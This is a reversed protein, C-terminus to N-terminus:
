SPIGQVGEQLGPVSHDAAGETEAFDADGHNGEYEGGEGGGDRGADAQHINAALPLQVHAGQGSGTDGEEKWDGM